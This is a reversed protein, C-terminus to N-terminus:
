GDKTALKEYSKRSYSSHSLKSSLGELRQEFHAIGVRSSSVLRPRCSNCCIARCDNGDVRAKNLTSNLTRFGKRRRKTENTRKKHAVRRYTCEDSWCQEPKNRIEKMIFFIHTPPLPVYQTIIIIRDRERSKM